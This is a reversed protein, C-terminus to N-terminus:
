LRPGFNPGFKFRNIVMKLRLAQKSKRHQFHITHVNIISNVHHSKSQTCHLPIHSTVCSHTGYRNQTFAIHMGFSICLLDCEYGIAGHSCVMSFQVSFYKKFVSDWESLISSHSRTKLIWLFPNLQQNKCSLFTRPTAKQIDCM